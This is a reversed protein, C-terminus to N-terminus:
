RVEIKTSATAEFSIEIETKSLLKQLSIIAWTIKQRSPIYEWALPEKKWDFNM